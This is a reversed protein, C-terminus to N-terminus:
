QIANSIGTSTHLFVCDYFIFRSLFTFQTTLCIENRQISFNLSKLNDPYENPYSFM